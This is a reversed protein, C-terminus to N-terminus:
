QKPATKHFGTLQPFALSDEFIEPLGAYVQRLEAQHKALVDASKSWKEDDSNILNREGLLQLFAECERHVYILYGVITRPFYFRAEDIKIYLSRIKGADCKAIDSVLVVDEILTKCAEYIEYRKEFLDYKLKDLAIDRQSQAIRIQARGFTFTIFAAVTAGIFAAVPGAFDKAIDYWTHAPM